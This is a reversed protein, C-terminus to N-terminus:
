RQFLKLLSRSEVRGAIAVRHLDAKLSEILQRTERDKEDYSERAMEVGAANDEVRKRAARDYQEAGFPQELLATLAQEAGYHSQLWGLILGGATQRESLAEELVAFQYAIAPKREALQPILPELWRHVRPAQQPYQSGIVIHDTGPPGLDRDIRTLDLSLAHAASAAKQDAAREQAIQTIRGGLWVGAIGTIATILSESFSM